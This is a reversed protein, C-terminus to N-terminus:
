NYDFSKVLILYNASAQNNAKYYTLRVRIVFNIFNKFIYKWPKHNTANTLNFFKKKNLKM